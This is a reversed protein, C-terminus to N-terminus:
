EYRVLLLLQRWSLRVPSKFIGQDLYIAGYTAASNLLRSKTLAAAFLLLFTRENKWPGLYRGKGTTAATTTQASKELEQRPFLQLFHRSEIETLNVNM